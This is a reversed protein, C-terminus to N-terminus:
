KDNNEKRTKLNELAKIIDNVATQVNDQSNDIIIDAQQYLSIREELLNAIKIEPDDNDLLPRKRLGNKLRRLLVQQDAKLWVTLGKVKIASLTDPSVVAGGGTSIVSLPGDLLAGITQHECTRFFAEGKQEFIEAISRGAREEIVTDSDHFPVDLKNALVRGVHSKGSAMMGILVVPKGLIHLINSQEKKINKMKIHM